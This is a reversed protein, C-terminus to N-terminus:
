EPISWRVTNRYSGETPAGDADTAPDLRANKSVTACTHQDLFEYGSSKTVECGTVMGAPSVTLRFTVSGQMGERIARSPFDHAGWVWAGPNIPSAERNPEFPGALDPDPIAPRPKSELPRFGTPLADPDLTEACALLSAYADNSGKLPIKALERGNAIVSLENGKRFASILEPTVNGIYFTDSEPILVSEFANSGIKFRSEVYDPWPSKGKTVKVFMVEAGIPLRFLAFEGNNTHESGQLSCVGPERGVVWGELRAFMERNDEEEEAKVPVGLLGLAVCAAISQKWFQM